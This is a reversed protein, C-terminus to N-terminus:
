ECGLEELKARVDDIEANVLEMQDYIRIAGQLFTCAEHRQGRTVAVRGLNGLAM